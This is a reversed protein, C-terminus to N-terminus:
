TGDKKFVGLLRGEEETALERLMVADDKGLTYENRALWAAHEAALASVGAGGGSGVVVEWYREDVALGKRLLAGQLLSHRLDEEGLNCVVVGGKGLSCVRRRLMDRRWEEGVGDGFGGAEGVERVELLAQEGKVYVGWHHDSWEVGGAGMCGKVKGMGGDEMLVDVDGVGYVPPRYLVYAV